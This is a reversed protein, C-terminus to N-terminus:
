GDAYKKLLRRAVSLAQSVDPAEPAPPTLLSDLINNLVQLVLQEKLPLKEGRIRKAALEQRLPEARDLFVRLPETGTDSDEVSVGGPPVEVVAVPRRLVHGIGRQLDVKASTGFSAAAYRRVMHENSIQM